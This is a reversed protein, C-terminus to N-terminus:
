LAVDNKLVQLIDSVAKETKKALAAREKELQEARKLAPNNKPDQNLLFERLKQIRGINHAGFGARRDNELRMLEKKAEEIREAQRRKEKEEARERAREEKLWQSFSKGRARSAVTEREDAERRVAAIKEDIVKLEAAGAEKLKQATEKAEERKKKEADAEIKKKKEAAEKEARVSEDRRKKENDAEARAADEKRKAEAADRDAQEKEAKAIEASAIDEIRNQAKLKEAEQRVALSKSKAEQDTLESKKQQLQKQADVVALRAKEQASKLTKENKQWATWQIWESETAVSKVFKDNKYAGIGERKAVRRQLDGARENFLKKFWADRDRNLVWLESDVGSSVSKSDELAREQEAVSKKSAALNAEAKKKEAEHRIELAKKDFKADLMPDNADLGQMRRERKARERQIENEALAMNELNGIEQQRLRLTEKIVSQTEVSTKKISELVKNTTEGYADIVSTKQRMLNEYFAKSQEKLTVWIAGITQAGIEWLGGVAIEKSIKFLGKQLLGAKEGLVEMARGFGSASKTNRGLAKGVRNIDGEVEVLAKGERIESIKLNIQANAM